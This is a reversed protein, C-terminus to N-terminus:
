EGETFSIDFPCLGNPTVNSPIKYMSFPKSKKSSGKRKLINIALMSPSIPPMSKAARDNTHQIGKMIM